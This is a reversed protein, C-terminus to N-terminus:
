AARWWVRWRDHHLATLLYSSSAHKAPKKMELLRNYPRQIMGGAVQRPTASDTFLLFFFFFFFDRPHTTL